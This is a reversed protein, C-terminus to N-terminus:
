RCTRGSADMLPARSIANKGGMVPPYRWSFQRALNISDFRSYTQLTLRKIGCGFGRFKRAAMRIDAREHRKGTDAASGLRAFRYRGKREFM